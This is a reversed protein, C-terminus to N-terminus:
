PALSGLRQRSRLLKRLRQLFALRLFVLVLSSDASRLRFLLVSRLRLSLFGRLPGGPALPALLWSFEFSRRARLGLRSVAGPRQLGWAPARQQLRLSGLRVSGDPFCCWGWWRGARSPPDGRIGLM